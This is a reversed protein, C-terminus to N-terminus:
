QACSEKKEFQSSMSLVWMMKAIVKKLFYINLKGLNLVM